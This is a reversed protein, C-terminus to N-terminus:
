LYEELILPNERVIVSGEYLLQEADNTVITRHQRGITILINAQEADLKAHLLHFLKGVKELNQQKKKSERIGFFNENKEFYGVYKPFLYPELLFPNKAVANKGKRISHAEKSMGWGFFRSIFSPPQYREGREKGITLYIFDRYILHQKSLEDFLLRKKNGLTQAKYLNAKQNLLEDWSLDKREQFSKGQTKEEKNEPFYSEIKQWIGGLSYGFVYRCGRNIYLSFFSFVKRVAEAIKLITREIIGIEQSPPIRAQGKLNSAQVSGTM